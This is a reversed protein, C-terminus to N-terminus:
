AAVRSEAAILAAAASHGSRLAGEMLGTFEPDIYEGAFYLRGYAAALAEADQVSFGPAHATYAGRALPDFPWSTIVAGAHGIALDARLARVEGEWGRAGRDIGLRLLHGIEGGFCNLVPAVAGGLGNATWTWFRGSVSMVASARPVEDLALHLKAANGQVIRSMAQRKRDPIDILLSTADILVGFPLAVVAYDFSEEEGGATIVVEDGHQVAAQVKSNLRIADGLVSAMADPLRQNGGGIRWSPQPHFSAVHDLTGQASVQDVRVATSMEIRAELAERTDGEVGIEDLVDAVSRAGSGTAVAEAAREGLTAMADTSVHPRDGPIRVYYSMGTDVLELGHKRCHDRLTSYGGLVFEAGREIVHLGGAASITESWVRGGVRNRAEFVTVDHGAGVLETAAALGALGAGLVATRTM